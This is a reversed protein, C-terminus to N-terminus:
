RPQPASRGSAAVQLVGVLYWAERPSAVVPLDRLPAATKRFHLKLRLFEPSSGHHLTLEQLESLPVSFSHRTDKEEEFALRGEELIARGQAHHFPKNHEAPLVLSPTPLPGPAAQDRFRRLCQILENESCIQFASLRNDADFRALLNVIKWVRESGGAANTYSAAFWEVQVKVQQWRAWFLPTDLAGSDFPGVMRLLDERTTLGPQLRALRPKKTLQGRASAVDRPHPIMICSSIMVALAGAPIVRAVIRAATM